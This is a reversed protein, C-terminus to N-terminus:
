LRINKEVLQRRNINTQPRRSEIFKNVDYMDGGFSIITSADASVIPYDDYEPIERLQGITYWYDPFPAVFDFWNSTIGRVDIYYNVGDVQKVCYAHILENHENYMAEIEYGYKKSLITAFTDCYGHLFNYKTLKGESHPFSLSMRIGDIASKLEKKQEDKDLDYYGTHFDNPDDTEVKCELLKESNPSYMSKFKYIIETIIRDIENIQEKDLESNIKDDLEPDITTKIKHAQINSYVLTSYIQEFDDTIGFITIYHQKGNINTVCYYFSGDCKGNINISQIEYGLIESLKKAFRYSNYESFLSFMIENKHTMYEYRGFICNLRKDDDSLYFGTKIGSSLENENISNAQEYTRNLNTEGLSFFDYHKHTWGIAYGFATNMIDLVKSAQEKDTFILYLKKSDELISKEYTGPCIYYLTCGPKLAEIDGYIPANRVEFKDSDGLPPFTKNDYNSSKWIKNSAKICAEVDDDKKLAVQGYRWTIIRGTGISKNFDIIENSLHEKIYREYIYKELQNKIQSFYNYEIGCDAYNEYLQYLADDSIKSIRAFFNQPNNIICQLGDAEVINKISLIVRRNCEM